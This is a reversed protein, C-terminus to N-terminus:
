CGVADVEQHDIVGSPVGGGLDQLAPHRARCGCRRPTGSGRSGPSRPCGSARSDGPGPPRAEVEGDEQVAIALVRGLQERLEDLDPLARARVHNQSGAHAIQAAGAGASHREVLHGAIADQRDDLVVQGTQMEGLVVRSEPGVRGVEQALHRELDVGVIEVEVGLDQKLGHIDPRPDLLEVNWGMVTVFLAVHLTHLVPLVDQALGQAIAQM